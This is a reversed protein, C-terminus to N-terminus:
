LSPPWSVLPSHTFFPVWDSGTPLFSCFSAKYPACWNITRLPFHFLSFTSREM